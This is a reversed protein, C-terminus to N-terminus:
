GEVELEQLWKSALVDEITFRQAVDVCFIGKLLQQAGDSVDCSELRSADYTGTMITQQLRPLFGDNFPLTGTLIAYLICGLAWVDSSKGNMAGDTTEQLDEPACYHLSGVGCSSSSLSRELPAPSTTSACELTQNDRIFESLGFDAIKLTPIWEDRLKARAPTASNEWDELVLVNECKLDRHIVGATKHMYSVAQALQLFMPRAVREPMCGRSTLYDLLSGGAAQESVICVADDLEMVEHMCLINPHDLSAWIRTEKDMLQRANDIADNRDKSYISTPGPLTQFSSQPSVAPAKAASDRTHYNPISIRGQMTLSEMSNQLSCTPSQIPSRTNPKRLIKIAFHQNSISDHALFVRSFSGYGIEKVLTYNAIQDGEEYVGREFDLSVDLSGVRPTGLMSLFSMAPSSCISADSANPISVPSSATQSVASGRRKANVLRRLLSTSNTRPMSHSQSHVPSQAPIPPRRHQSPDRDRQHNTIQASLTSVNSSM